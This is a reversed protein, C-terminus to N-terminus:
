LVKAYRVSSSSGSGDHGYAVHVAGDPGYAVGFYDLLDRDGTTCSIGAMCFGGVHNPVSTVKTVTVSPTASWVDTVRAVYVDWSGSFAGSPNGPTASGYWAVTVESGDPKAAIAGFTNSRLGPPSVAIRKMSLTNLGHMARLEMVGNDASPQALLADGADTVAMQTFIQAGSPPLIALQLSGQCPQSWRLVRTGESYWLRNQADLVVNGANAPGSNTVTRTLWTRGADTSYACQESGVPASFFVLAVNGDGRAALWPRDAVSSAGVVSTTYAWSAGLNDSVAVGVVEGQTDGVYLRGADDMALARGDTFLGPLFPHSSHAWTAGGDASRHVGSTDGVLVTSGALLISPEAGGSVSGAPAALDAVLPALFVGGAEGPAALPVLCLTTTLALALRRM